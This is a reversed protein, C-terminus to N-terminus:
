KWCQFSHDPNVSSRIPRQARDRNRKANDDHNRKLNIHKQERLAQVSQRTAPMRPTVTSPCQTHLQCTVQVHQAMGRTQCVDGFHAPGRGVPPLAHASDHTAQKGSLGSETTGPCKTTYSAYQALGAEAPRTHPGDSSVYVEVHLPRRSM